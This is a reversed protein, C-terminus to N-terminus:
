REFTLPKLAGFYDTIRRFLELAANSQFQGSKQVIGIENYAFADSLPIAATMPDGVGTAASRGLNISHPAIMVGIGDSVLQGCLEEGTGEYVVRPTFGAQQCLKVVASEMGFGLNSIIFRDNSLEAASICKRGCLPHGPPLMVSLQDRYLSSWELDQGYIPHDSVAFNLTGDDLSAKIQAESQLRCNLRVDPFDLIFRHLIHTIYVAETLAVNVVGRELGAMEKVASVTNELTNLVQIVHQLFFRGDSNLTIKGGKKREFLLIGIENELQAISRSLASQTIHLEMAAKTFSEYKAVTKFYTLQTIEM